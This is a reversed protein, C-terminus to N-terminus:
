AILNLFKNFVADDAVASSRGGLWREIVRADTELDSQLRLCEQRPM